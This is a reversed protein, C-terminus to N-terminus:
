REASLERLGTSGCAAGGGGGYRDGGAGPPPPLAEAPRRRCPHSARAPTSTSRATAPPSVARKRVRSLPEGALTPVGDVVPAAVLLSSLALVPAGGAALLAGGAALRATGVTSPSGSGTSGIGVKM